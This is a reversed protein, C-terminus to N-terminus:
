SPPAPRPHGLILLQTPSLNLGAKAAGDAHDIRAFIQIGKGAGRAVAPDASEALAGSALLRKYDWGSLSVRNAATRRHEHWRQFADDAETAHARHFRIQPQPCLPAESQEDFILLTHFAPADDQADTHEFRVSLGEEALLRLVFTLAELM